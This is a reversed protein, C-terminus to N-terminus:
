IDHECDKKESEDGHIIAAVGSTIVQLVSDDIKRASQLADREPLYKWFCCLFRILGLLRYPNTCSVLTKLFARFFLRKGFNKFYTLLMNRFIQSERRPDALGYASGGYHYIGLEPIHLVVYGNLWCRLGLDHDEWNSIFGEDFLYGIKDIVSRRIMFGAGCPASSFREAALLEENNAIVGDIMFTDAYRTVSGKTEITSGALAVHPSIALCEVFRRVAGKELVVDPNLVCIFDGKCRSVGLNNGKCFELNQEMAHLNVGQFGTRIIEVTRDSSHNDVVVVEINPYDQAAISDLCRKIFGESNYTVILCSVLPAKEEPSQKWRRVAVSNYPIVVPQIDVYRKHGAVTLSGRLSSCLLGARETDKDFTMVLSYTKGRSNRIPDFRFPETFRKLKTLSGSEVVRSTKRLAVPDHEEFVYLTIGATAKKHFFRVLIDFAAGSFNDEMSTFTFIFSNGGKMGLRLLREVPVGACFEAIGGNVFPAAQVYTVEFDSVTRGASIPVTRGGTLEVHKRAIDLLPGYQILGLKQTEHEFLRAATEFCALATGKNKRFNLNLIGKYFLYPAFCGPAASAYAFATDAASMVASFRLMFSDWSENLGKGMSTELTGVCSDAEAYRGENVLLEFLRFQLGIGLPGSASDPGTKRLLYELTMEKAASSAGFNDFADRPLPRRGAAVGMITPISTGFFSHLSLGAESLISSLGKRSFLIHHEGPSYEAGLDDVSGDPTTLVVFGEEERLSSLINLVARPDPHHEIFQVGTVIDFKRDFRADEIRGELLKIGLDRAGQRACEGPDVGMVNWGFLVSAMDLLFGYSGGVELIDVTGKQKKGPLNDALNRIKSLVEAYFLLNAGRELYWKASEWLTENKEPSPPPYYFLSGCAACRYLLYQGFRKYFFGEAQCVPCAPAKIM